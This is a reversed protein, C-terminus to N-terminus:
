IDQVTYPDYRKVRYMIEVAVVGVAVESAENLNNRVGRVHTEFALGGFTQDVHVMKEIDANLKALAARRDSPDANHFVPKVELQMWGERVLSLHLRVPDDGNDTVIVAFKEDANGTWEGDRFVADVTQQYGGGTTIGLLATRFATLLQDRIPTAM